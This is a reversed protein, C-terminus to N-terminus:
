STLADGCAGPPHPARAVRHVRFTTCAGPQVPFRVAGSYAQGSKDIRGDLDIMFWNDDPRQIWQDQKLLLRGTAAEYRGRLTFCGSPVGPNKANEYFTALALVERGRAERVDLTISTLGQACTYEGAWAGSAPAALAESVFLLAACGALWASTKM